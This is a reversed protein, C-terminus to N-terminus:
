QSLLKACKKDTNLCPHISGFNRMNEISQTCEVTETYCKHQHISPVSIGCLEEISQTCKLKVTQRANKRFVVVQIPLLNYSLHFM